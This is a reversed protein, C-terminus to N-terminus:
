VFSRLWKIVDPALFVALLIAGIVRIRKLYKQQNQEDSVQSIVLYGVIMNVINTIVIVVREM